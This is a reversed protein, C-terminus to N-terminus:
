SKTGFNEVTFRVVEEGAKQLAEDYSGGFAGSGIRGEVQTKGLEAGKADLYLINVVVSGEGANGIGGWFWRQFQSGPNHSVFTYAIRLDEGKSFGGKQYLGQEVTSRFKQTVEAPVQVNANNEVLQVRTYRTTTKVPEMVITRATGCASLLLAVAVILTRKM